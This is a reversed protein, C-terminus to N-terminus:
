RAEGEVLTDSSRVSVHDGSAAVLREYLLTYRVRAVPTDAELPITAQWTGRIRTDSLQTRAGADPGQAIAGWTRGFVREADAVIQGDEREAFVLLRARRFMDGTPFDHGADVRIAVQVANGARSASVHVAERFAAPQHGAVFRHDRHGARQPMHCAVCATGAFASARHELLTKQVLETRGEFTFEHCPACSATAATAPKRRHPEAHCSVCAVGESAVRTPAHCNTCFARDKPEELALSAQFTSDTVATRHFSARWEGAIEAHCSACGSESSRASPVPVRASPVPVSGCAGGLAAVLVGTFLATATGGRAIARSV